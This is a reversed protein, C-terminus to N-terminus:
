CRTVTAANYHRHSSSRARAASVNDIDIDAKPSILFEQCVGRPVMLGKTVGM